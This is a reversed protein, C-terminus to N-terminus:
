KSQRLMAWHRVSTGPIEDEHVVEFGFRQYLSVNNPNQTDLYGPLGQEDLRDLSPRQYV